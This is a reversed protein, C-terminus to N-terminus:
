VCEVFLDFGVPWDFRFGVCVLIGVVCQEDGMKLVVVYM